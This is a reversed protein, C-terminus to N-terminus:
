RGSGIVSVKSYDPRTNGTQAGGDLETGGATDQHEGLGSEAIRSGGPRLAADGHGEAVFIFDAQVLLVGEVGTVAEAAGFRDRKEDFFAGLVDGLKDFPTGFEIPGAGLEGKGAFGRVAAGADEVSVSIGGAASILRASRARAWVM